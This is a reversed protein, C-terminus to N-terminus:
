LSEYIFESDDKKLIDGANNLNEKEMLKVADVDFHKIKMDENRVKDAIFTYWPNLTIICSDTDTTLDVQRILTEVREIKDIIQYRYYVYEKVIDVM